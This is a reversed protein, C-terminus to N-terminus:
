KMNSIMHPDEEVATLSSAKPTNKALSGVLKGFPWNWVKMEQRVGVQVVDSKRGRLLCIALKTYCM